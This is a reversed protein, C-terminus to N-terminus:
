NYKSLISNKVEINLGYKYCLDQIIDLYWKPSYPSIIIKDILIDLNVDIYKGGSIEEKTWDYVLGAGFDVTHILRVEDEFNYASHKHIVPYMINGYPMLDKEYNIYNIESLNIKENTKKFSDVMKSVSSTIMIGKHFDSYIKWLAASESDGKNWCSVCNLAKLKKEAKIDEDIDLIVEDPTMQKFKHSLPLRHKSLELRKEHTAKSTTGEFHDELKDLRCFFLAKKHILSIFKTLDLYKVIKYNSDPYIVPATHRSPKIIPM